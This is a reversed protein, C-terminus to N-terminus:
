DVKTNEEWSHSYRELLRMGELRGVLVRYADRKKGVYAV